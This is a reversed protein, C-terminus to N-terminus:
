KFYKGFFGIISFFIFLGNTIIILTNVTDGQDLIMGFLFPSAASALVIFFHMLSKIAGLNNVGYLEAWLASSINEAMGQTMGLISMYIFLMLTGNYNALLALTLILPICFFPVLKRAKYKDVAIGAVTTGIIAFIAYFVFAYSIAELTWNKYSAIEVQHILFGTVTFSMMLTIPLYLYFKKDKLVDRRKWTIKSEDIKNKIFDKHFNAHKRLLIIVLIGYVIFLTIGSSIWTYRWGILSILAVAIFPFIMEAFASGYGSIALAKGRHKDFYRAMSTRSIHSMLGQGFLRLFYICIFFIFLNNVFGFVVCVISFSTIVFLTYKRLDISDILKGVWILTIASLITALSYYSGFEGNSLSLTSRLEAGFLSIFYTQGFASGMCTVFGFILLNKNNVYFSGM